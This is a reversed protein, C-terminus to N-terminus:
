KEDGKQKDNTPVKTLKSQMITRTSNGIGDNIHVVQLLVSKINSNLVGRKFGETFINSSM